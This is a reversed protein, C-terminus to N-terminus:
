RFKYQDQLLTTTDVSQQQQVIANEMVLSDQQFTHKSAQVATSVIDSLLSAELPGQNYLACVREKFDVAVRVQCEACAEEQLSADVVLATSNKPPCKMVHVTVVLPCDEVGPVPVAHCIDGDVALDVQAGGANSSSPPTTTMVSSQQPKHTPTVLPLQTNLLAARIVRSCTDMVSGGSKSLILVDVGLRWVYSGPVVCLKELNVVHQLLLKSLTTQLFEEQQRQQNQLLDVHLEVVGQHPQLPSPKVLEAKCSCLVHTAGGGMLIRASGNSLSLPANQLLTYQRLETRTRGDLRINDRCAELIYTVESSSLPTANRKNSSLFTNNRSKNPNLTSLRPATTTTM